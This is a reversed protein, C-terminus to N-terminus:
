GARPHLLPRDFLYHGAKRIVLSRRRILINNLAQRSLSRWWPKTAQSAQTTTLLSWYVRRFEKISLDLASDLRFSHHWLTPILGSDDILSVPHSDISRLWRVTGFSRCITM